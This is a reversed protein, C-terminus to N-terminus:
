FGEWDPGWNIPESKKTEEKRIFKEEVKDLEKALVNIEESIDSDWVDEVDEIELESHIEDIIAEVHEMVVDHIYSQIEIMLEEVSTQLLTFILNEDIEAHKLHDQELFDEISEDIYDYIEKELSDMSHFDM